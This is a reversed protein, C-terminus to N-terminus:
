VGVKRMSLCSSAQYDVLGDQGDVQALKVAVVLDSKCGLWGLRSLQTNHHPKRGTGSELKPGPDLGGGRTLRGAGARTVM